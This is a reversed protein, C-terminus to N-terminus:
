SRDNGNASFNRVERLKQVFIDILEDDCRINQDLFQVTLTLQGPKNQDIATTVTFREDVTSSSSNLSNDDFYVRHESSGTTTLPHEQQPLHNYGQLSYTTYCSLFM